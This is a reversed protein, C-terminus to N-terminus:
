PDRAGKPGARREGTREVIRVVPAETCGCDCRPRCKPPVWFRRSTLVLRRAYTTRVWAAATEPDTESDLATATVYAAVYRAAERAGVTRLDLGQGEAHGGCASVWASAMAQVSIWPLIICVHLHPHGGTSDTNEWTACYAPAYGCQDYVWRRWLPWAKAIIERTEELTEGHKATLTLLRLQPAQRWPRGARYWAVRQERTRATLAPVLRAFERKRRRDICAECWHRLECYLPRTVVQGCGILRGSEDRRGGGCSQELVWREGCGEARVTYTRTM